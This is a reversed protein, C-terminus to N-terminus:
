LPLANGAALQSTLFALKEPNRVLHLATIRTGDTSCIAATDLAGRIYVLFAPEGNVTALDMRLASADGGLLQLTNDAFIVMLQAITDRGQVLRRPAPAKGGSDAWMQVDAALVEQLAGLDGRETARLFREVLAHQQAPPAAFRPRQTALQAKARHFIQRCNAQSVQVIAGIEDYGYEFVERLLFVAREVPTLTELLVLFALTISEHREAARQPDSPADLTLVPEPLWPGVYQERTVHAAKLRDLCLRTTITTLYARPV